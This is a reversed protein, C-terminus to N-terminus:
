FIDEEEDVTSKPEAPINEFLPVWTVVDLMDDPLRPNEIQESQRKNEQFAEFLELRYIDIGEPASWRIPVICRRGSTRDLLEAKMLTWSNPGDKGLIFLQEGFKRQLIWMGGRKTKIPTPDELKDNKAKFVVIGPKAEIGLTVSDHRQETVTVKFGSNYVFVISENTKRSLKISSINRAMEELATQSPLNIASIHM